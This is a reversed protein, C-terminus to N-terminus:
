SKEFLNHAVMTCPNSRKPVYFVTIRLCMDKGNQTLGSGEPSVKVRGRETDIFGDPSKGILDLVEMCGKPCVVEDETHVTARDM